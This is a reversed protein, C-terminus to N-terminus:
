VEGLQTIGYLNGVDILGEGAALMLWVLDLALLIRGTSPDTIELVEGWTKRVTLDSMQGAARETINLQNNYLCIARLLYSGFDNWQYFRQPRSKFFGRTPDYSISYVDSVNRENVRLPMIFDDQYMSYIMSLVKGIASVDEPEDQYVDSSRLFIGNTEMLTMPVTYAATSYFMHDCMLKPMTKTQGMPSMYLRLDNSWRCTCMIMEVEPPMNGPLVRYSEYPQEEAFMPNDSTLECAIFDIIRDGVSVPSWRWDRNVDRLRGPYAVQDIKDLFEDPSIVEKSGAKSTVMAPNETFLRNVNEINFFAEHGARWFIPYIPAPGYGHAELTNPDFPVPSVLIIDCLTMDEHWSARKCFVQLKYKSWGAPIMMDRNQYVSGTLGYVPHLEIDAVMSCEIKAGSPILSPLASVSIIM